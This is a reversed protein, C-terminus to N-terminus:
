DEMPSQRQSVGMQNPEGKPGWCGARPRIGLSWTISAYILSYILPHVLLLLWRAAMCAAPESVAPVGWTPGTM